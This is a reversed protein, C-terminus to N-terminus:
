RYPVCPGDDRGVLHGAINPAQKQYSSKTRVCTRRWCIVVEFLNRFVLGFTVLASDLFCPNKQGNVAVVAVPRFPRFIQQLLGASFINKRRAFSRGIVSLPSLGIALPLLLM